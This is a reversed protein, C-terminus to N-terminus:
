REDGGEGGGGARGAVKVRFPHETIVFAHCRPLRLMDAALCVGAPLAAAITGVANSPSGRLTGDFLAATTGTLSTPFSRSLMDM